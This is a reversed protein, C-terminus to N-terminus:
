AAKDDYQVSLSSNYMTDAFIAYGKTPNNVFVHTVAGILKGNQLIPSGSMGQVIGGTDKLLEEDTVKIVMNKSQESDSLDIKEIEIEYEKPTIGNITALITAKGTTIEQRMGLPVAPADSPVTNMVGYLGASCNIDLSGVAFGSSFSGLLEGPSGQKGRKIGNIIVDCVEGSSLPLIDGTDIDCVPHGLGAFVGTKPNYFTMTGIGASSDRVWMGARYCNDAASLEPTIFVIMESSERKLTIELSNGKSGSIIKEVESNSSVTKGAISTIVDGSKIGAQAAPSAFGNKTEFSSTEVVIVGQTLMKIGFPTGCPVLVPNDVENISVTKIPILGALSLRATASKRISSDWTSASQYVEEVPSVKIFGALNLETGSSVYYNDPLKINYYVVLALVSLLLTNVTCAAIKVFRRM